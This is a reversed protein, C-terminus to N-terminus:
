SFNLKEPVLFKERFTTTTETKTKLVAMEIGPNKLIHKTNLYRYANEKIHNIM